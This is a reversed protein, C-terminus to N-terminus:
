AKRISASITLAGWERALWDEVAPPLSDEGKLLNRWLRELSTEREPCLRLM